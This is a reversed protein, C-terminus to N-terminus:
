AEAGLLREALAPRADHMGLVQRAPEVAANAGEVRALGELDLVAHAAVVALVAPHQVTRRRRMRRVSQEEAIDAGADVNVLAPGSLVREGAREFALAFQADSRFFRAPRLVAEKGRHEGLQLRRRLRNGGPRRMQPLLHRRAALRAFRELRDHAARATSFEASANRARSSHCGSMMSESMPM